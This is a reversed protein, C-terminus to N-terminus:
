MEHISNQFLIILENELNFLKQQNIIFFLKLYRGRIEGEKVHKTFEFHPM